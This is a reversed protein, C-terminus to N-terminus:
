YDSLYIRKDASSQRIPRWGRDANAAPRALSRGLLRRRVVGMPTVVMFYIAVLAAALLRQKLPPVARRLRHPADRLRAHLQVVLPLRRLRDKVM